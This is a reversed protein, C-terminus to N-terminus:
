PWTSPYTNSLKLQKPEGQHQKAPTSEKERGVHAM